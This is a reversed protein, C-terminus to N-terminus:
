FKKVFWGGVLGGVGSGFSRETISTSWWDQFKKFLNSCVEECGEWWRDLKLYKEIPKLLDKLERLKVLIRKWDDESGKMVVGLIVSLFDMTYDFYEQMSTMLVIKNVIKHFTPIWLRSM